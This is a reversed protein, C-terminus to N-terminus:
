RRAIGAAAVRGVIGHLKDLAQSFGTRHGDVGEPGVFSAIQETLVPKSAGSGAGVFEFAILAATLVADGELLAESISILRDSEVSHHRVKTRYRM